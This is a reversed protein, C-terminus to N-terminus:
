ISEMMSFDEDFQVNSRFLIKLLTAICLVIRKKFASVMALQTNSDMALWWDIPM